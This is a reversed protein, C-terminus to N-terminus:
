RSSAYHWGYSRVHWQLSPHRSAIHGDPEGVDVPNLQPIAKFSGHHDQCHDIWWTNHLTAPLWQIESKRAERPAIRMIRVREWAVGTDLESTDECGHYTDGCVPSQSKSLWHFRKSLWTNAYDVCCANGAIHLDTEPSEFYRSICVQEIIKALGPRMTSVM